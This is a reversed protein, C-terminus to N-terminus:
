FKVGTAGTFGTGTVIVRDKGTASGCAPSAGTVTPAAIYTFRDDPSTASTGGGTTPAIDVAGSGPPSTVAIPTTSAAADLPAPPGATAPAGGFSVGTVDTFGTGTITVSTRGTASGRAPSVGTVTPAAIYSFQDAASTASTGGAATTVTIDVTGSGPPSTVTIQ